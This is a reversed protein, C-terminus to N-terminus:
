AQKSLNWDKIVKYILSHKNIKTILLSNLQEKMEKQWEKRSDAGVRYEEEYNEMYDGTTEIINYILLLLLLFLVM